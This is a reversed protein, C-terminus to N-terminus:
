FMLWDILANGSILSLFYPPRLLRSPRSWYSFGLYCPFISFLFFFCYFPSFVTWTPSSEKLTREVTSCEWRVSLAIETATTRWATVSIWGLHAMAAKSLTDKRALMLNSFAVVEYFNQLHWLIRFLFLSSNELLSEYVLFTSAVPCRRFIMITAVPRRSRAIRSLQRLWLSWWPWFSGCRKPRKQLNKRVRCTRFISIRRYTHCDVLQLLGCWKSRM